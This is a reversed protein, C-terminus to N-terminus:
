LGFFISLNKQVEGRRDCMTMPLEVSTVDKKWVRLEGTEGPSFQWPSEFTGNGIKKINNPDAGDYILKFTGNEIGPIKPIQIQLPVFKTEPSSDSGPVGSGISLGDAFDPFAM